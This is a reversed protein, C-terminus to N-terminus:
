RGYWEGDVRWPEHDDWEGNHNLDCVVQGHRNAALAGQRDECYTDSLCASTAIILACLITTIAILKAM